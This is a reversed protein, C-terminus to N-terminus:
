STHFRQHHILRQLTEKAGPGFQLTKVGRSQPLQRAARGLRSRDKGFLVGLGNQRKGMVVKEGADAM